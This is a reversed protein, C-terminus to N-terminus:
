RDSKGEEEGYMTLVPAVVSRGGAYLHTPELSWTCGCAAMAYLTRSEQDMCHKVQESQSNDSEVSPDWGGDYIRQIGGATM